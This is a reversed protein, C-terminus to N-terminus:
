GLNNDATGDPNSMPTNIGDISAVNYGLYKGAKIQDVFIERSMIEGTKLNLFKENRGTENEELVIVPKEPDLRYNTDGKYKRPDNPTIILESNELAKKLLDALEKKIKTEKGYKRGVANNWFDMNKASEKNDGFIEQMQGLVDAIIPWKYEIVLIGSTYAHRFADVDNDYFEKPIINFEGSSKKPLKRINKDFYEYSELRAEEKLDRPDLNM